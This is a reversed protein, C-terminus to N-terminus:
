TKDVAEQRPICCVSSHMIPLSLKICAASSHRPYCDFPKFHRARVYVDATGIGSYYDKYADPGQVRKRRCTKLHWDTNWLIRFM